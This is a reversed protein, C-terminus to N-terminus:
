VPRISKSPNGYFIHALTPIIAAPAPVIVQTAPCDPALAAPIVAAAGREIAQAIFGAGDSKKGARAVFLDGAQLSRSDECIGSIEVDAIGTLIFQPDLERLLQHLRMPVDKEWRGSFAAPLRARGRLDIM